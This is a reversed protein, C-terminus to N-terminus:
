RPSDGGRGGDFEAAWDLVFELSRRPAPDATPRTVFLAGNPGVTWAYFSDTGPARWVLEPEGDAEGEGGAVAMSWISLSDDTFYLRTGDPSWCMLASSAECALPRRPGEPKLDTLDQVYVRGEGDEFEVYAVRQLDPSVVFTFAADSEVVSRREGTSLSLIGLEARLSTRPADSHRVVLLRDDDIWAVVVGADEIPESVPGSGDAAVIHVTAETVTSQDHLRGEQISYAIRAGDPRWAVRQLFGVTPSRETVPYEPGDLVGVFLQPRRESDVAAMAVRDGDPSASLRGYARPKSSIARSTAPGTVLHTLSGRVEESAPAFVLDGAGSVGFAVVPESLRVDVGRDLTMTDLDLRGGLLQRDRLFL